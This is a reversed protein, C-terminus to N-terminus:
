QGVLDRRLNDRLQLVAASAIGKVYYWEHLTLGTPPEEIPAGGSIREVLLELAAVIESRTM